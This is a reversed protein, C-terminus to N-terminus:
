QIEELVLRYKPGIFNGDSDEKVCLRKPINVQDSKLRTGLCVIYGEPANDFYGEAILFRGKGKMEGEESKKYDRAVVLLLLALHIDINEFTIKV